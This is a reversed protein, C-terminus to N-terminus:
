TCRRVVLSIASTIPTAGPVMMARRNRARSFSRLTICGAGLLDNLHAGSKGGMVRPLQGLAVLELPQQGLEGGRLVLALQQEFLVALEFFIQQAQRVRQGRGVKQLQHHCLTATAGAGSGDFFSIAEPMKMPTPESAAASTAIAPAPPLGEDTPRANACSSTRQCCHNVPRNLANKATHRVAASGSDTARAMVNNIETM